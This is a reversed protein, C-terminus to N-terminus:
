QALQEPRLPKHQYNIELLEGQDQELDLSYALVPIHETAPQRKLLGIIAWGERAALRNGLILAAPPAATVNTLWDTEEDVNAVRLTFGQERLYNCLSDAPDARETLVLVSNASPVLVPGIDPSAASAAIVPLDFFFTSGSGLDGPSRVCISCIPLACTPVGTM